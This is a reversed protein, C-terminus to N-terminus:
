VVVVRVPADVRVAFGVLGGAAVAGGLLVVGWAPGITAFLTPAILMALLTGREVRGDM